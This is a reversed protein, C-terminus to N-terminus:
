VRGLRLASVRGKTIGLAAAIETYNMGSDHMEQIARRTIDALEANERRHIIAANVAAIREIPDPIAELRHILCALHEHQFDPIGAM